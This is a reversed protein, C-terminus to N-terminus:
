RGATMSHRALFASLIEALGAPNDIMQLHTADPLVAGEARPLLALATRQVQEFVPGSREGVVVLAPATIRQAEEASFSWSPLAPLDCAFVTAADKAATAFAEPGLARDLAARYRPGCAAALFADFAGATDGAGVRAMVEGMAAGFEASAFLVAPLAPELLTLSAVVQPADLALQLAVAGGYSHGVIHARELGIHRLVALCDAAHEAITRPTAAASSAGYGRRDWTVLRHRGALGPAERLPRFAGALAGHIFVVPEGSGADAYALHGGDVPAVGVTEPETVM